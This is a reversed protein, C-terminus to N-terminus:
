NKIRFKIFSFFTFFYRDTLKNSWYIKMFSFFFDFVYVFVCAVVLLVLIFYNKQYVLYAM